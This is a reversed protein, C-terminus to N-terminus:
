YMCLVHAHSFHVMEQELLSFFLNFLGVNIPQLGGVIFLIFM